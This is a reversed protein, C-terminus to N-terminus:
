RADSCGSFFAEAHNKAAVLNSLARFNKRYVEIIFEGCYGTQTLLSRIASFNMTGEGPLLCDTEASNDNLHVHVLRDGMAACMALAKEGARVAQKVDFVFACEERLAARMRLIFDTRESRFRNVNEQAVLVGFRKGLAFLEAYREFYTSETITGYRYDRQGHLVVIKAGLINAAEFYRKYQELSDEFRRRYDSFFLLAEFASTFPHLSVVRAGASDTTRRLATVFAPELERFTNFFIEFTQFGLSSLTQLSRETEMPYLCATSVGADM